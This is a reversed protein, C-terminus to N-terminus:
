WNWWRPKFSSRRRILSAGASELGGAAVWVALPVLVNDTARPAVAEAVAAALGAGLMRGRSPAGFLSAAMATGLAALLAVALSRGREEDEGLAGPLPATGLSTGVLGGLGDGLALALLAAAAPFPANGLLGVATFVAASLAYLVLGSWAEGDGSVAREIARAAQLWRALLPIALLVVFGTLAM